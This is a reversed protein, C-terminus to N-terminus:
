VRASHEPVVLGSRLRLRTPREECSALRIRLGVLIGSHVLRELRVSNPLGPTLLLHLAAASLLELILERVTVAQIALFHMRM